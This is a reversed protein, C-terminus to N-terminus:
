KMVVKKGNVIYLGKTPYLVRRGNLDYYVNDETGVKINKIATVDGGFDLNLERAGAPNSDLHLYAKGVAVTGESAHYFLGDKLVYDYKGDGGISTTGDGAKLKNSSVDDTTAAVSVAIASGPETTKLVIPTGAPVKDVNTLTVKSADAATAIYATLKDTSTFDLNYTPVYTTLTKAPTISESTATTTGYVEVYLRSQGSIKFSFASGATPTEKSVVIESLVGTGEPVEIYRQIFKAYSSVVTFGDTVSLTTESDGNAIGYVKVSQITVDSPPTITLTGGNAKFMNPYKAISSNNLKSSNALTYEAKTFTDNDYQTDSVPIADPQLTILKNGVVDGVVPLTIVQSAVDSDASGTKTAYAYITGSSAPIFQGTYETKSGSTKLDANDIAYYIKEYGETACEIKVVKNGYVTFTPTKVKPATVTITLTNNTSANYKSAVASTNFNITTTGTSVPTVVGTANVTVIGSTGFTVDGDFSIGDLSGKSGVQIQSTEDTGITTKTLSFVPAQAGVPAKLAFEYWDSNNSADSGYIYAIYTTSTSLEDFLLEGVSGSSMSKTDILTQTTGVFSFLSVISKRTDSNRSVLFSAKEAGTFRIAHTRATKRVTYRNFSGTSSVFPATTGDPVAWSATGGDTALKSHWEKSGINAKPSTEVIWGNADATYDTQSSLDLTSSPIDPLTVGSILDTPNGWASGISM